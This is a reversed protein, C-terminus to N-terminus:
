KSTAPIPDSFADLSPGPVASLRRNLEAFSILEQRDEDWLALTLSHWADGLSITPASHMREIEEHCQSLRYNPIMPDIHHIHHYGINGTLWRLVGPLKCFSSGRLSADVFDWEDQHVWWTGEFQHGIYFVWMGIASTTLLTPLYIVVAAKLGITFHCAVLAAALALNTSIISWRESRTHHKSGATFRHMVLFVIAPLVFLQFVRHRIFRYRRQRRPPLALYERVTLRPGEILEDRRDLNSSSAHHHAHYRAWALYPTFTLCGCFFGVGNRLWPNRFLSGHGCDHQFIFIRFLFGWNLTSVAASLWPSIRLCYWSLWLLAFFPVFTNVLQWVTWALSRREYPKLVAKWDHPTLVLELDPREVLLEQMM